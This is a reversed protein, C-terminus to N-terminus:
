ALLDLVNEPPRGIVARDQHVVIPRELVKPYQALLSLITTEDAAAFGHEQYESEGPRLMSQIPLDLAKLVKKLTAVTPPQDLYKIVEIDDTREQLM